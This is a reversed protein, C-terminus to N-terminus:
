MNFNVGSPKVLELLGQFAQTVKLAMAHGDASEVREIEGSSDYTVDIKGVGEIAIAIPKGIDNYEFVLIEENTIMKSIKGNELYLLEVFDGNAKSAKILDGKTNYDFSTEADENKVYTLKELTPHYKMEIDTGDTSTKRILKCRNNYKFYTERSGRIIEIPLHCQEDYTTSTGIGQIETIIKSTYRNGNAGVGIFYEYTNSTKKGDFGDKIVTTSYHDPNETGDDNFYKKYEYNVTEGDRETISSCYSTKDEYTMIMADEPIGPLRVPNYVIKTLNHIKDYEYRYQNGGGDENYVLNDDEYQYTTISNNLKVETIYGKDNTQVHLINGDSCIMKSIYGDVYVIETFIGNKDVYKTLRGNSDFYEKTQDSISLREFGNETITIKQNGRTYAEFVLGDILEPTYDLLNKEILSLWEAHRVEVNDTLKNQLTLIQSPNNGILNNELKTDIIIDVMMQASEQSVLDSYFITKGGAGYEQVSIHGDPFFFMKTEWKTGWGYGFLGIETSKSNYTRTFDGFVFQINSTVLDKYSVYFNGNKLNVGAFVTISLLVTIFLTFKTKM